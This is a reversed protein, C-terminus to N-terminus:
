MKETAILISNSHTRMDITRGISIRFPAKISPVDFCPFARRAFDPFFNSVAIWRFIYRSISPFIAGRAM